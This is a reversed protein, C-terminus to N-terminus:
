FQIRQQGYDSKSNEEQKILEQLKMIARHQIVRISGESKDTLASIESNDLEDFFKLKIITQQVPDLKKLLKLLFKQQQDLNIIDVVNSEYELTNELEDLAVTFKKTRYYDIVTNRAIQYLWAEFTKTETISNIKVYAKVFVDECLDEAVEKHGVRFYIFRFIKKFFLDYIQGFAGNQGSKAQEVLIKLSDESYGKNNLSSIHLVFPKDM